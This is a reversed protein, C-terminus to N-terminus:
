SKLEYIAALRDTFLKFDGDYHCKLVAIKYNHKEFFALVHYDTISALLYFRYPEKNSHIFFTPNSANPVYMKRGVKFRLELEYYAGKNILLFCLRPRESSFTCAKMDHKRPKGKVNRLGYTFLFHTFPQTQLLPVAKRWLAYVLKLTRGNEQQDALKEKDTCGYERLKIPALLQMEEALLNLNEQLPTYNYGQGQHDTILFENFGRIATGKEKFVGTYRVLLPFHPSHFSGLQTDAFCYGIAFANTQNLMELQPVPAPLAAYEKEKVPCILPYGPKYFFPYKAKRIIDTGARDIIITLYKSKGTIPDFFNPWYYKDFNFGRGPWSFTYLAFYAYRSLYAPHTDVSCSIHLEQEFVRIYVREEEEDGLRIGLTLVENHFSITRKRIVLYPRESFRFDSHTNLTQLTLIRSGNELPLTYWEDQPRFVPNKALQCRM